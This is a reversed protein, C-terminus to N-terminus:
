DHTSAYPSNIANANRPQKQVTERPSDTVSRLAFGCSNEELNGGVFEFNGSSHDTEQQRQIVFRRAPKRAQGAARAELETVRERLGRIESKRRTEACARAIIGEIERLRFPKILCDSVGLRMAAILDESTPHGTMLVISLDPAINKLSAILDIGSCDKLKLDVIAADFDGTALIAPLEGRLGTTRVHYGLGCCMEQLLERVFLEDDVILLRKTMM